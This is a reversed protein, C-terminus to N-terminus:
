PPKAKASPTTPNTATFVYPDILHLVSHYLVSHDRSTARTSATPRASTRLREVGWHALIRQDASAQISRFLRSANRVPRRPGVEVRTSSAARRAGRCPSEGGTEIGALSGTNTESETLSKVEM